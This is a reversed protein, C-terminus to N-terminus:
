SPRDNHCSPSRQVVEQVHHTFTCLHKVFAIHCTPKWAFHDKKLLPTHEICEHLITSEIASHTHVLCKTVSAAILTWDTIGHIM